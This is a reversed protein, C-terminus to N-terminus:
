QRTSPARVPTGASSWWRGHPQSSMKPTARPWTTPKVRISTSEISSSRISVALIAPTSPSSNTATPERLERVSELVNGEHSEEAYIVETGVFADGGQVAEPVPAGVLGLLTPMLDISQVWHRVVTGGRSARPLKIFLPVRVQEDYLTTGHWFGGHDNFEEGHDSMVIITLDDYLGREKLGAM